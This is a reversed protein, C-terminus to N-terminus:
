GVTALWLVQGPVILDPDDGLTDRNLDYLAPWGGPVHQAEAIADLTDGDQVTWRAIDTHDTRDTRDTHDAHDNRGTRPTHGTRDTNAPPPQTVVRAARAGCVPWPALGRRAALHEAVAIQQERTALDARPAHSLGGNARWTAQDFQLGGYFGNGTAIHWRGGSECRALADWDVAAPRTHAAGAPLPSASAPVAAAALLGCACLLFLLLKPVSPSLPPRVPM